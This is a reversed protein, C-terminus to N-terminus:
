PQQRQRLRACGVDEPRCKYPVSGCAMGGCAWIVGHRQWVCPTRESGGSGGCPARLLNQCRACGQVADRVPAVS